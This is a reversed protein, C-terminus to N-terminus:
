AGSRQPAIEERACRREAIEQPVFNYPPWPGSLLMKRSDRQELRRFVQRFAVLNRREVLFYLSLLRGGFATAARASRETKCQAFLGAFATRCQEAVAEEQQASGDVEEYHERRRQLYGKGTV